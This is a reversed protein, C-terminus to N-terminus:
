ISNQPHFNKFLNNIQGFVHESLGKRQTIGQTSEWYRFPYKEAIETPIAVQEETAKTEQICVIDFNTNKLFTQLCEKKLNARIGAVNWSVIRLSSM